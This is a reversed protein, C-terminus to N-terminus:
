SRCLTNLVFRREALLKSKCRKMIICEHLMEILSEVSTSSRDTKQRPEEQAIM